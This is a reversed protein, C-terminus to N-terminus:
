FRWALGVTLRHEREQGADRRLPEDLRYGASLALGPTADWSAGLGLDISRDPENAVTERQTYGQVAAERISLKYDDAAIGHTYGLDARLRLWGMDGLEIPVLGLSLGIAASTESVPSSEYTLDSVFPDAISFSDTDQRQFSLEAWPTLTL